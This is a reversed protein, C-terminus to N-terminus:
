AGKKMSLPVMKAKYYAMADSLDSILPQLDPSGPLSNMGVQQSYVDMIIELVGRHIRIIETNTFEEVFSIEEAYLEMLYASDEEYVIVGQTENRYIMFGLVTVAVIALCILKKM